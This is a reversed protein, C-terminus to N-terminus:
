TKHSPNTTASPATLNLIISIRTGHGPATDITMNGRFGAIRERIGQLGFHGTTPGAANSPDFGNGNDQVSFSITENHCEGAVKVATAKGHRVANVVLERVIRLIAHTTTESLNCRPVNFRVDVKANGANPGIARRIAETMDKEEFTRSRLDWLCSKLEHRCSALMQRVVTENAGNEFQLAIGTLTQSLSDHIEVALRTREAVKLEAAKHAIRERYLEESRKETLRRLARNWIVIWLIAILLVIIVICLRQPTWLPARRILRFDNHDRPLLTFRRFHPLDYTSAGQEYEVTLIGTAEVVSGNEAWEPLDILETEIGVRYGGDEVVLRRGEASLPPTDRVTGIISVLSGHRNMDIKANGSEDTFLKPIPLSKVVANQDESESGASSNQQATKLIAEDFQLHYGCLSAFGAVIVSEGIAPMMQGVAPRVLAIQMRKNDPKFRVYFGEKAKVIVTGNIRQRGVIQSSTFKPLKEPDTEAPEIIDIPNITSLTLMPPLMSRWTTTAMPVGVIKVKAGILPALTAIPTFRKLCVIAVIGEENKLTFWCYQIDSEDEAVRVITGALRVLRSNELGGTVRIITSEVPIPPVNTAVPVLHEVVVRRKWGKWLLLHGDLRYLVDERPHVTNDSMKFMLSYSNSWFIHKRTKQHASIVHGTLSFREGARYLETDSSKLAAIDCIIAFLISAFHM